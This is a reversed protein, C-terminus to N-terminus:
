HRASTRTAADDVKWDGFNGEMRMRKRIFLFGGEGEGEMRSLMSGLPTPEEYVLTVQMREVFWPFKSPHGSLRVMRGEATDVIAEGISLEVTREGAPEYSIRVRNPGSRDPGLIRFRYLPQKSPAFPSEFSLRVQKKGANFVWNRWLTAHAM